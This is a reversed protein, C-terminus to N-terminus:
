NSQCKSSCGSVCSCLDPMSYNIRLELAEDEVSGMISAITEMTEM